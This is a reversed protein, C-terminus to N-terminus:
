SRWRVHFPGVNAAYPYRRELEAVLDDPPLVSFAPGANLVIVTVGHKELAELIRPTRGTTDDFFDFLTRTPNKLGSLFYVEPCDPSAWTYGGKARARLMPHAVTVDCESSVNDGRDRQNRM